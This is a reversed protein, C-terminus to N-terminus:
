VCVEFTGTLSLADKQYWRNNKSWNVLAPVVRLNWPVHLGCVSPSKIPLIHDVHVNEGFLYAFDSAARYCEKIASIDDLNLWKPTASAKQARYKAVQQRRREPYKKSNVRASANVKEKNNEYYKRKTARVKEPNRAVWEAVKIKHQTKNEHYKRRAADKCRQKNQERWRRDAERVAELNKDRYRKCQENACKKCAPRVSGDRYLYFDGLPKEVKCSTCCKMEVM